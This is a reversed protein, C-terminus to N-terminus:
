YGSEAILYIRLDGSPVTDKFTVVPDTDSTAYGEIVFDQYSSAAISVAAAAPTPTINTATVTATNANSTDSNYIRFTKSIFVPSVRLHSTYITKSITTMEASGLSLVAYQGYQDTGTTVSGGCVWGFGDRLEIHASM